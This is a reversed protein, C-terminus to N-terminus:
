WKKKKRKGRGKQVKSGIPRGVKVRHEVARRQQM